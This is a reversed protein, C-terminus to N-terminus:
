ARPLPVAIFVQKDDRGVLFLVARRGSQVAGHVADVVDRPGSVQTNAVRRIVDGPQFGAEDATSDAKVAAVVAGREDDALGYHRRTDRDVAALALGLLPVTAAPEPRARETSAALEAATPTRAVTVNLHIQRGERWVGLAVTRGPAVASVLLHLDRLRQVPRGDVSRVADGIRLGARAAPGNPALAAVLAGGETPLDLADAAEKTIEQAEVGLWGRDVRGHERLTAVVKRATAAPIAFGIGISGGTVSYISTNVGIVRGDRDLLPGGSNGRNMPADIQLYDDFRGSQIDRDRASIIGATVTSELGFPNGVAIVWDGVQARDSDGWSLFPLPERAELKLLALDTEGDRGVVRADLRRGNSLTAQIKVANRTVHASTVVYGTPDIIFGSGLRVARVAAADDNGSGDDDPTLLRRLFEEFPTGRLEPPIQSTLPGDEQARRPLRATLNVVAPQAKAVLEAFGEPAAARAAFSACLVLLATAAGAIRKRRHSGRSLTSCIAIM